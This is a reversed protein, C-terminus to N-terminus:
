DRDETKKPFLGPFHEPTFSHAPFPEQKLAEIAKEGESVDEKLEATYFPNEGCALLLKDGTRNEQVNLLREGSERLERATLHTAALQRLLDRIGSETAAKQWEDVCADGDYQKITWHPM